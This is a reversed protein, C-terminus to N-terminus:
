VASGLRENVVHFRQRIDDSLHDFRTHVEAVSFELRDLRETQRTSQDRLESIREHVMDLTRRHTRLHNDVGTFREVMDAQLSDVRGRLEQMQEGHDHLQQQILEFYRDMRAFAATTEADM